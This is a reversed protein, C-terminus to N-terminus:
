RNLPGNLEREVVRVYDKDDTGGISLSLVCGDAAQKETIEEDTVCVDGAWDRAAALAQPMATYPAADVDAHRDETIVIWITM